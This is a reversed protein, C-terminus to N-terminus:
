DPWMIAGPARFTFIHHKMIKKATKRFFQRNKWMERELEGPLYFDPGFTLIM